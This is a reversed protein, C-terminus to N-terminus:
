AVVATEITVPTNPTGGGAPMSGDDGGAAVKEITALGAEDITGFVTYNPPLVSDEFVLFFQSGNSGPQGSNAMALTGRPYVASLTAKPDGEAFATTPYENDFGYGPGGTGKGSPDGCQLIQLGPSTVLRHCPTNDFYKQEVLSVMSNVTCPAETRNLDMGIPGVTTTLQVTVIGEAPVGTASPPNVTKAAGAAAPYSCDVTAGAPAPVPPLQAFQSLDLPPAKTTSKASSKASSTAPTATGSDNSSCGALVLATAGFAAIVLSARKM